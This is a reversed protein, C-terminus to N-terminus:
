LNKFEVPASGGRKVAMETVVELTVPGVVNEDGRSSVRPDSLPIFYYETADHSIDPAIRSVVIFNEHQYYTTVRPAVVNIM